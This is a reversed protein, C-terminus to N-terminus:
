LQNVEFARLLRETHIMAGVAPVDANAGVVRMLKDYRGGGAIPVNFDLGTAHVEFVFGTYYGLRGGFNASFYLRSLDIDSAIFNKLRRDYIELAGSLSLGNARMLDRIRAGAARVPADVNLYSELLERKAVSIPEGQLDEIMATLNQAIEYVSRAGIFEINHRDLYQFIIQEVNRSKLENIDRLLDEPVGEFTVSPRSSMEKLAARFANPRCFQSKLRQRWRTPIDLAGLLAEFIGIDGIRIKFNQLGVSKLTKIILALVETEAAEYQANGFFEIGVQRFERPHYSDDGNPQFRFAPGNYCYRGSASTRGYRQWHLDCTPITLDPRLCLESGEPDTFVYTRRRLDEGVFDLFLDAPQIISPVVTEYDSACFVSLINQAQDELAQFKRATEASM